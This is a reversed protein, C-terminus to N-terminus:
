TVVSPRGDAGLDRVPVKTHDSVGGFMVTRGRQFARLWSAEGNHWKGTGFTVYGARGLVEPLLPAGDLTSTNVRFLTRGSLLMARSAVCVAGSDGGFVYARRFSVGRRALADLTPTRIHRNGHAAITDARMDDAFLFLINPRAPPGAVKEQATTGFGSVATAVLGPILWRM